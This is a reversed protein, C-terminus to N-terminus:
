VMLELNGLWVECPPLLPDTGHSSITSVVANRAISTVYTCTGYM